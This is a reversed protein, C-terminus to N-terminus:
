SNYLSKEYHILEVKKSLGSAFKVLYREKELKKMHYIGSAWCVLSKKEWIRRKEAFIRHYNFYKRVFDNPGYPIAHTAFGSRNLYEPLTEFQSIDLIGSLGM